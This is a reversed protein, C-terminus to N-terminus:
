NKVKEIASIILDYLESAIINNGEQNINNSSIMADNERYQNYQFSQFKSEVIGSNFKFWKPIINDNKPISHVVPIKKYTLYQDLLVLAGQYRNMQLNFDYFYKNYYKLSEIFDMRDINTGILFLPAIQDAIQNEIEAEVNFDRITNIKEHFELPNVSRFDRNPIRPAFYFQPLSHFIVAIDLSNGNTKLQYLIREQSCLISGFNFAIGDFRESIQDVFVKTQGKTHKNAYVISHGFFGINPKKNFYEM